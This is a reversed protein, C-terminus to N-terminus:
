SLFPHSHTCTTTIGFASLDKGNKDLVLLGDDSSVWGTQEAFGNKDHDFYAGYTLVTTEVGDKDLDLALPSAVQSADKFLRKTQDICDNPEAAHVDKGDILNKFFLKAAGTGARGLASILSIAALADDIIVILVQDFLSPPTPDPIWEARLQPRGEYMGPEICITGSPCGDEPYLPIVIRPM